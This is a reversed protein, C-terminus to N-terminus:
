IDPDVGGGIPSNADSGFAFPIGPANDIFPLTWSFVDSPQFGDGNFEEDARENAIVEFVRVDQDPAVILADYAGEDFTM